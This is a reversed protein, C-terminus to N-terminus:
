PIVYPQGNKFIKSNPFLKLFRNVTTQVQIPDLEMGFCTANHKEAAVLTTGSGLFLDLVNAGNKCYAFLYEVEGLPKSYKFYDDGTTARGFNMVSTARLEGNGNCFKLAHGHNFYKEKRLIHVLEHTNAPLTEEAVGNAPTLNVLNHYGYGDQCLTNIFPFAKAGRSFICIVGPYTTCIQTYDMDFLPDLIEMDIKSGNVLKDVHLQDTSDGCLVFHRGIQLLDGLEFDSTKAENFSEPEESEEDQSYADFGPVDLGWAELDKVDWNNSLEDWDWEGFGVNDAIIFRRKEEETLEDARKVWNDPIEKFGLDQLARLRMNGGLIMNNQDVVIPRLSMMKPFEQISQKLKAFKEDRLVRPNEPNPIIESLKM